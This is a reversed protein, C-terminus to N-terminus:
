KCLAAELEKIPQIAGTEVLAKYHEFRRHYLFYTLKAPVERAFDCGLLKLVAEIKQEAVPIQEKSDVCYELEAVQYSLDDCDARDIDIICDDLLYKRRTTVFSCFPAIGCALLREELQKSSCEELSFFRCIQLHDKIEEYTDVSSPRVAIKLEFTEQRKRLWAKKRTYSADPTDYYTDTFSHESVFKGLHQIKKVEEEDLRVKKEVEICALPTM